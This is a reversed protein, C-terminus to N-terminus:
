REGCMGSIHLDRGIHLGQCSPDSCVGGNLEFACLRVSSGANVIRTLVISFLLHEDLASTLISSRLRTGVQPVKALM